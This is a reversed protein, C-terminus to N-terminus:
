KKEASEEPAFGYVEVPVRNEICAAIVSATGASRFDWFALVRDANRVIALNRIKPANRGFKAYDPVIKRFPIKLEAATQEALTDVGRAGGSVILATGGPVRRKIEDILSNQCNRSGVIAVRM